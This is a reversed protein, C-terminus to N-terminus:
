TERALLWVKKYFFNKVAKSCYNELSESLKILSFQWLHFLKPVKELPPCFLFHCAAIYFTIYLM